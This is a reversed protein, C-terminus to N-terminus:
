VFNSHTQVRFILSAKRLDRSAKIQKNLEKDKIKEKELLLEMHGVKEELSSTKENLTTISAGLEIQRAQRFDLKVRREQM